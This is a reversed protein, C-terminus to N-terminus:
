PAKSGRPAATQASLSLILWAPAETRHSADLTGVARFLLRVRRPLGVAGLDARGGAAPDGPLVRHHVPGRLVAGRASLFPRKEPPRMKDFRWLALLILANAGSLYIQTPHRLAGHQWVGWPVACAKGYCCGGFFCGWRGVAEGASVAVAFLDGTPRRLGLYRKYVLITLYGGAIGGLVTKGAAGGFLWQALNAGALGGILGAAMVAMIGATVLQRRRAMLVFAALGILYGLAYCGSSLNVSSLLAM